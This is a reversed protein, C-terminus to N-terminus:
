ENDLSEVIKDIDIKLFDVNQLNEEITKTTDFNYEPIIMRVQTNLIAELKAIILNKEEQLNLIAENLKKAQEKANEIIQNAKVEAEMMMVQTQKRTSEISKSSNEQAKLLTKQLNNEIEKYSEIQESLETTKSKLHENERLLHDVEEAIRDLFTKVEEPNFGLIKKSFEQNKISNPNLKM